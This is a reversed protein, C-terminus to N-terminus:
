PAFICSLKPPMVDSLIGVMVDEEISKNSDIWMAIINLVACVYGHVLYELESDLADKGKYFIIEKKMHDSLYAASKTLYSDAGHTNKFANMIFKSNSEYGKIFGVLFGHWDIEGDRYEEFLKDVRCKYAWLTLEFKDPFHNYFTHSTLGCNESIQKVTIKDIPTTKALEYLSNVFRLKTTENKM